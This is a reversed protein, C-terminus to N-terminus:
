QIFERKIFQMEVEFINTKLSTQKEEMRFDTIVIQPRHSAMSFSDIAVDEMLSLLKKVDKEDMQVPHRQKEETEKMSASTRIAEETFALRNAGSSLFNLRSELLRKDALAPHQLLAELEMQEKQLFSLSEIQEDLFYPNTNAYRQILNEKQTKRKLATKGKRCAHYFREELDNVNTYEIFAYGGGFLIPCLLFFYFFVPHIKSFCFKGLQEFIV